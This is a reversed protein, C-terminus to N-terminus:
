NKFKFELQDHPVRVCPPTTTTHTCTHTHPPPAELILPHPLALWCGACRSKKQAELTSSHESFSEVRTSSEGVLFWKISADIDFSRCVDCSMSAPRKLWKEYTLPHGPGQGGRKWRFGRLTCREGNTHSRCAVCALGTRGQRQGRLFTTFATPANSDAFWRPSDM